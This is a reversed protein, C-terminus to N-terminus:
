GDTLCAQDHGEDQGQSSAEDGSGCGGLIGPEKAAEGSGEARGVAVGRRQGGLGAEVLEGALHEPEFVVEVM